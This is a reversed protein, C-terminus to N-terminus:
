FMTTLNIIKRKTSCSSLKEPWISHKRTTMSPTQLFLRTSKASFEFKSQFPQQFHLLKQALASYSLSGSSSVSFNLNSVSDVPVLEAAKPNVDPRSPVHRKPHRGKGELPFDLNFRSTQNGRDTQNGQLNFALINLLYSLIHGSKTSISGSQSWHPLSRQAGDQPTQNGKSASQGSSASIWCDTYFM